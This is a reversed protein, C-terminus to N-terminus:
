QSHEMWRSSMSQQSLPELYETDRYGLRVVELQGHKLPDQYACRGNPQASCGGPVMVGRIDQILANSMAHGSFRSDGYRLHIFRSLALPTIWSTTTRTIPFIDVGFVNVQLLPTANYNFPRSPLVGSNLYLDVTQRAPWGTLSSSGRGSADLGSELSTFFGVLLRNPYKALPFDFPNDQVNSADISAQAAFVGPTNYLADVIPEYANLKKRLLSDSPTAGGCSQAWRGRMTELSEGASVNVFRVNHASMFQRLSDAVRQSRARLRSISDSTGSADCFETLAFQSYKLQDLVVIPQHPNSEVLASFVYNGHGAGQFSYNVYVNEVPAGLPRLWEAPIFDPSAFESLTEHLVVPAHWSFAVPSLGGGSDARYFGKLRNKYRIARPPLEPFDDIILIAEGTNEAMSFENPDFPFDGWDCVSDDPATQFCTDAEVQAKRAAIRDKLSQSPLGADEPQLPRPEASCATTSVFFSAVSTLLFPRFM